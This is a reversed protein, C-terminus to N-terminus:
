YRLSHTAFLWFVRLMFMTLLLKFVLGLCYTRKLWLYTCPTDVVGIGLVGSLIGRWGRRSELRRAPKQWRSWVRATTCGAVGRVRPRSLFRSESVVILWAPVGEDNWCLMAQAASCGPSLRSIASMTTSLGPTNLPTSAHRRHAGIAGRPSHPTPMSSHPDSLYQNPPRPTLKSIRARCSASTRTMLRTTLRTTTPRLNTPSLSLHPSQLELSITTRYPRTSTSTNM